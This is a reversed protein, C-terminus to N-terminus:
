ETGAGSAIEALAQRAQDAEPFGESIALSQEFEWKAKELEGARHYAVGLHYRISPHRPAGAKAVELHKIAEEPNGNLLWAWGLTDAVAFNGPAIDAARMALDLAEEPQGTHTACLYALNNYASVLLLDDEAAAISERYLHAAEEFRQGGECIEAMRAYASARRSGSALHVLDQLVQLAELTEGHRLHSDALIDYTPLFGPYSEVISRFKAVARQHSGSKDLLDAVILEPFVDGPLLASLSEAQEVAPRLWQFAVYAALLNSHLAARLAEEGQLSHLAELHVRRAEEFARATADDLFSPLPGVSTPLEGLATRISRLFSAALGRPADSGEQTAALIALAGDLDGSVQLALAHFPAIYEEALKEEGLLRSYLALADDDRGSLVYLMGLISAAAPSPEIELSHLLEREAEQISLNEALSANAQTEALGKHVLVTGLVRRMASTNLREPPLARLLGVAGAWDGTGAYSQVLLYVLSDPTTEDLVKTLYTQATEDSGESRAIAALALFAERRSSLAAQHSFSDPMQTELARDAAEVVETLSSKAEELQRLAVQFLGLRLRLRFDLPYLRLAGKYAEAAQVYQGRDASLTALYTMFVGDGAFPDRAAQCLELARDPDYEYVRSVTNCFQRALNAAAQSDGALSRAAQRYYGLASTVEGRLGYALGWLHARFATLRRLADADGAMAELATMCEDLAAKFEEESARGHGYAMALSGLHQEAFSQALSLYQEAVAPKASADEGAALEEKLKLRNLAVVAKFGYEQRRSPNVDVAPDMVLPTRKADEITQGYLRSAEQLDGARELALGLAYRARAWHVEGSLAVRLDRIAQEYNEQHLMAEGHVFSASRHSPTQGLIEASIAAAQEFEGAELMIWACLNELTRDKPSVALAQRITEIADDLRGVVLFLQVLLRSAEVNKPDQQLIGQLMEEALEVDPQHLAVALRGCAIRAGLLDPDDELARQYAWIAHKRADDTLHFIQTAQRLLLGVQREAQSGTATRRTVEIEKDLALLRQDHALARAERIEGLLVYAGSKKEASHIHNLVLAESNGLDLLVKRYQEPDLPRDAGVALVSRSRGLYVRARGLAIDAAPIENSSTKDLEALAKEYEGTRLYAQALNYRSVGSEEVELSRKYEAVAKEYQGKQLYINGRRALLVHKPVRKTLAYVGLAGGVVFVCTLLVWLRWHRRLFRNIRRKRRKQGAVM